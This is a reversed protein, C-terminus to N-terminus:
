KEIKSKTEPSIDKFTLSHLSTTSHTHNWELDILTNSDTSKKLPKIAMSFKCNSNQVRASPHKELYAKVKKM